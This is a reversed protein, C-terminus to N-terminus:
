FRVWVGHRWYGRGAHERWVYHERPGWRWNDPHVVVGYAPAYAYHRRVHWCAGEGNCAVAASAVPASLAIATLGLLAGAAIKPVLKM